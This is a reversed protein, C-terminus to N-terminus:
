ALLTLLIYHAAIAAQPSTPFCGKIVIDVSIATQKQVISMLRVFPSMIMRVLYVLEVQTEAVGDCRAVSEHTMALKTAGNRMSPAALRWRQLVSGHGSVGVWRPMLGM